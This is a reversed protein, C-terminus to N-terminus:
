MSTRARLSARSDRGTALYVARPAVGLVFGLRHIRQNRNRGRRSRRRKRSGFYCLVGGGVMGNFRRAASRTRAGAFRGCNWDGCAGDDNPREVGTCPRVRRSVRCIDRLPRAASLGVRRYIPSPRSALRECYSSVIRNDSRSFASVLRPRPLRGAGRRARSNWFRARTHSRSFGFTGYSYSREQDGVAKSLLCTSFIPYLPSWKAPGFSLSM